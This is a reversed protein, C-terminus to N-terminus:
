EHHHLIDVPRMCFTVIDFINISFLLTYDHFYSSKFDWTFPSLTEKSIAKQFAYLWYQDYEYSMRNWIM